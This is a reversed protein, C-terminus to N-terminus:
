LLELTAYENIRLASSQVVLVFLPVGMQLGLRGAHIFGVDKALQIVNSILPLKEIGAFHFLVIVYIIFVGILAM